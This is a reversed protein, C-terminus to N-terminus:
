CEDDCGGEEDGFVDNLWRIMSLKRQDVAYRDVIARVGSILQEVEFWDVGANHACRNGIKSYALIDARDAKAILRRRYLGDAYLGCGSLRKSRKLEVEHLECLERLHTELGIRTFVGGALHLGASAAQTGCTLLERVPVPVSPTSRM